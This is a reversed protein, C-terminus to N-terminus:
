ELNVADLQAWAALPIQEARSTPSCGFQHLSDLWQAAVPTGALLGRIQKRRQTFLRRILERTSNKFLLPDPLRRLHLLISDVGPVPYFCTRAVAHVGARVYAANVFISIAGFSKSGHMATIRDAAERQMMLVLESPLPHQLLREMWTSTIAYPLNAVVKFNPQDAPLGARPFEVADGEILQFQQPFEVALTARLHAALTPDLEVAFVSCGQALLESSLTGLGPGIEVVTDGPQIGALLLSKRVINADILFNQGLNKRARHGLQDLLQRTQSPNLPM